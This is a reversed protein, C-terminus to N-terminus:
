ERDGWLTADDDPEAPPRTFDSERAELREVRLSEPDTIKGRNFDLLCIKGLADGGRNRHKCFAMAVKDPMLIERVSRERKRVADIDQKTATPSLPWFINGVVAAEQGPVTSGYLDDLQMPAHAKMPDRVPGQGLQALALCPTTTSRVAETLAKAAMSVGLYGPEALRMLHDVIIIDAGQKTEREFMRPIGAPDLFREAPFRVTEAYDKFQLKIHAQISEKAGPPLEHWRNELVFSTHLGLAISAWQLRMMHPDQELALFVVRKGQEALASLLNLGATSKGRGPFAGWIHWQSPLFPGVLDHVSQWPVRPAHTFDADLRELAAVGSDVAQERAWEAETWERDEGPLNM